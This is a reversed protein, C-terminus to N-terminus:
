SNKRGHIRDVFSKLQNLARHQMLRIAGESKGLAGAIERPSLDEVFRMILIDQYDHNLRRIASKITELTLTADVSGELRSEGRLAEPDVVELSVHNRKLRYHDIIRNRAIQYLWSSFPFGQSQYRAINQWASLFIEHTLDEAEQQHTVKLYVFRYIPPLYHSYLQGFCDSNGGQAQQILNEEGEIM